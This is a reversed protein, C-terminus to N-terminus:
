LCKYTMKTMRAYKVVCHLCPNLRCFCYATGKGQLWGDSSALRQLAANCPDATLHFSPLLSRLFRQSHPTRGGRACLFPLYSTRKNQLSLTDGSLTRHKLADPAAVRSNVYAVVDAFLRHLSNAQSTPRTFLLNTNICTTSHETQSRQHIWSNDDDGNNNDFTM